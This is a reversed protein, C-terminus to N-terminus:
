VPTILSGPGQYTQSLKSLQEQYSALLSLVISIDASATPSGVIIVKDNKTKNTKMINRM